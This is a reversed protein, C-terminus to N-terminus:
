QQPLNSLEFLISLIKIQAIIRVFEWTSIMARNNDKKPGLLKWLIHYGKLNRRLFYSM